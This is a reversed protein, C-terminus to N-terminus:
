SHSRMDRFKHSSAPTAQTACTCLSSGDHLLQRVHTCIRVRDIQTCLQGTLVHNHTSMFAYICMCLVLVRASTSYRSGTCIIAALDRSRILSTSRLRPGAAKSSCARRLPKRRKRLKSTRTMCLAFRSVSDTNTHIYTHTHTHTHAYLHAFNHSAMLTM